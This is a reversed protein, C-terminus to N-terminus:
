RSIMKNIYSEIDDLSEADKISEYAWKAFALGNETQIFAYREGDAFGYDAIDKLLLKAGNEEYYQGDTYQVPMFFGTQGVKFSSVVEADEVWVGDGISCPLLVTVNDGNKINGRIVKDATIRVLAHYEKRGNFDLVINDIQTITGKFIATDLTTFLEDETLWVLAATNKQNIGSDSYKVRVGDSLDSLPIMRRNNLSYIGASLILALCAAAAIFSLRIIRAPTHTVAAEDIYKDGVDGLSNIIQKGNM